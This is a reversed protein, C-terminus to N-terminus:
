FILRHCFLSRFHFILGRQSSKGTRFTQFRSHAIIYRYALTQKHIEDGFSNGTPSQKGNGAEGSGNNSRLIALRNSTPDTSLKNMGPRVTLVCEIVVSNDLSSSPTPTASHHVNSHMECLRGCGSCSPMTRFTTEALVGKENM